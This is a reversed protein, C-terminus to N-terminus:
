DLDILFSGLEPKAGLRGIKYSNYLSLNKHLGFSDGRSYVSSATARDKEVFWVLGRNENLFDEALLSAEQSTIILQSKDSNFMFVNLYYVLLEPHLDEGLEDVFYVHDGSILDYLINLVNIFKQTGSSQLALSIDFVGSPSFHTFVVDEVIPSLARQKEEESLVMKQLHERVEKPVQVDSSVIRFDLINFDSKQLMTRYFTRMRENSLISKTKRVFDTNEEGNVEHYHKEIGNKLMLFPEIGEKFSIKQCVALVSHNNLTNEKITDQTKKNLFLSQGFKIKPQINEEVFTREYFLAKSKNPYYYLKERLINRENYEVDYDYRAKEVYFSVHMKTPRDSTLAFPPYSVIKKNVDSLPLMLLMFVQQLALLINSKGSANAGYLIALKNLLTGDEMKAVCESEQGKAVFSLHQRDRISLYNEVWFDIIM